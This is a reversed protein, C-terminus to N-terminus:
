YLFLASFHGSRAAELQLASIRPASKPMRTRGGISCDCVDGALGHTAKVVLSTGVGLANVGV